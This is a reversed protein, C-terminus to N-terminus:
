VYAVFAHRKAKCLPCVGPAEGEITCGCISCVQVPGLKVDKGKDVAKKARKFLELHMKEVELAWGFTKAAGAEGQQQATALYVPYMETIAFTEGGFANILHQQTMAHM